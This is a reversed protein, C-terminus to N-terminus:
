NLAALTPKSTSTEGTGAIVSWCDEADKPGLTGSAYNPFNRPSLAKWLDLMPSVVSWGAEVMDARQFLTADGVM